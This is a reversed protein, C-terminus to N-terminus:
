AAASRRKAKVTTESTEIMPEPTVHIIRPNVPRVGPLTLLPRVNAATKQLNTMQRQTLSFEQMIAKWVVDADRVVTLITAISRALNLVNSRTPATVGNARGGRDSRDVLRRLYQAAQYSPHNRYGDRDMPVEPDIQRVFALFSGGTAAQYLGYIRIFTPALDARRQMVGAFSDRFTVFQRRLTQIQRNVTAPIAKVDAQPM